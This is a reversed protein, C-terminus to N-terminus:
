QVLSKVEIYDINRRPIITVTGEEDDELEYQRLVPDILMNKVEEVVAARDYQVVVVQGSKLHFSVDWLGDGM